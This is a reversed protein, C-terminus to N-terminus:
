PKDALLAEIQKVVEASEPKTRASFSVARKGDRSLL